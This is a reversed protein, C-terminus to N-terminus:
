ANYFVPALQNYSGDSKAQKELNSLAKESKTKYDTWAKAAFLVFEEFESDSLEFEKALAISDHKERYNNAFDFIIHEDLLAVLLPSLKKDELM